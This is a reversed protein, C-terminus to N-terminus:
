EDVGGGKTETGLLRLKEVHSDPEMGSDARLQAWRFCAEDRAATVARLKATEDLCLQHWEKIHEADLAILREIEARLGEVEEARQAALSLSHWQERSWTPETRDPDIVICIRDDLCERLEFTLGGFTLRTM